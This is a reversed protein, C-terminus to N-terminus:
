LSFKDDAVAPIEIVVTLGSLQMKHVVEPGFILAGGSPLEITQNTVDGLKKYEAAIPHESFYIELHQRHFHRDQEIFETTISLAFPGDTYQPLHRDIFESSESLNNPETAVAHQWVDGEFLREPKLQKGRARLLALLTDTLIHPAILKVSQRTNGQFQERIEDLPIFLVQRLM